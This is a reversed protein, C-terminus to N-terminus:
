KKRSLSLCASNYKQVLEDYAGQMCVLENELKKNKEILVEVPRALPQATCSTSPLVPAGSRDTIVTKKLSIVASYPSLQLQFNLHTNKVIDLIQDFKNAAFMAVDTIIRQDEKLDMQSLYM